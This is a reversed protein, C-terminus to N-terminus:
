LFCKALRNETKRILIGFTKLLAIRWSVFVNTQSNRQLDFASLRGERNFFFLFVSDFLQVAPEDLDWANDLRRETGMEEVGRSEKRRRLWRRREAHANM